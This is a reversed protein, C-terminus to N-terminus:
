TGIAADRCRRKIDWVEVPTLAGAFPSNQRLRQGRDTEATLEECVREVPLKLLELWEMYGRVLGPAHANRTMWRTVNARAMEVWDPRSPLAAAITRALELSIQDNVRHSV